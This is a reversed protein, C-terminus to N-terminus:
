RHAAALAMEKKHSPGKSAAAAAAGAATRGAAATAARVKAKSPFPTHGPSGGAQQKQNTTFREAASGPM